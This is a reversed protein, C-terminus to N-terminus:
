RVKVGPFSIFRIRYFLSEPSVENHWIGGGVIKLPVDGNQWELLGDFSTITESVGSIENEYSVVADVITFRGISVDVPEPEDNAEIAEKVLSLEEFFSGRDVYWNAIGDGTRKLNLRPRVLTYNSISIDGNLLPLIDLQAKVKDIQLLPNGNEIESPEFVVFDSVELGFLPQLTISPDGTFEIEKGTLERFQIKITDRVSISSLLLPISAVLVALACLCLRCHWHDM